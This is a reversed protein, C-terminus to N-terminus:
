ARELDIIVGEGIVSSYVGIENLNRVRVSRPVATPALVARPGQKAADASATAYFCNVTNTPIPAISVTDKPGVKIPPGYEPRDAALRVVQLLGTSFKATPSSGPSEKVTGGGGGSGSGGSPAGSPAGGSGAPSVPEVPVIDVVPRIPM